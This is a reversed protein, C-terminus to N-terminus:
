IVKFFYEMLIVALIITWLESLDKGSRERNAPIIDLKIYLAKYYYLYLIFPCSKSYLVYQSQLIIFTLELIIQMRWFHAFIAYQNKHTIWM